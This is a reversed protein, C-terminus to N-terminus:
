RASVPARRAILSDGVLALILIAGEVELRLSTSANVLLMGNAISGIVLAGALPSWVSGRGGFLSVGGIVTAALAELLITPDASNPTVGLAEGAAFLGGLTVLGGTLVFAALRVRGVRIGARRAAEANAGVAYLHLGFSTQTTLFWLVVVLGFLVAVPTPVGDYDNLVAVIVCGAVAAAVVPGLLQGTLVSAMGERRRALFAHTRLAAVFGVGVVVLVYGAWMPLYTNTVDGLAPTLSLVQSSPLIQLLAGELILSMGLTVIFSPVRFLTVVSGQVLGVLMGSVVMAVIALGAPVGHNVALGVGVAASVTATYVVALDIESVLLVFVLGLGVSATVVVQVSLFSLNRASLFVSNQLWFYLWVVALAILIPAMRWRGALQELARTTWPRSPQVDTATTPEEILAQM